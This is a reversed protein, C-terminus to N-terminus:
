EEWLPLGTVKDKGRKFPEGDFEEIIYEGAFIITGPALHGGFIKGEEDGFSIHAHIIPEGDKLSINGTCNVIEMEKDFKKDMYEQKDQDYFSITGQKVAGIVTVKGAEVEKEKVIETLKKILDSEYPLRGMYVNKLQYDRLM